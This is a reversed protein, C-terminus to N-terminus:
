IVTTKDTSNAWDRLNTTIDTEILDRVADFKPGWSEMMRDTEEQGIVALMSEYYNNRADEICRLANLLHGTETGITLQTTM